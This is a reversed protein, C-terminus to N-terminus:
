ELRLMGLTGLNTQITVTGVNGEQAGVMRVTSVDTIDIIDAVHVSATDNGNSARIYGGAGEVISVVGGIQLRLRLNTRLIGSTYRISGFIYYM